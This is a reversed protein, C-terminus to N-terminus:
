RRLQVWMRVVNDGRFKPVYNASSSLLWTLGCSVETNLMILLLTTCTSTLTSVYYSIPCCIAAGNM